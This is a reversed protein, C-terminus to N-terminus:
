PLLSSKTLKADFGSGVFGAALYVRVPGVGPCYVTYSEGEIFDEQAKWCGSFSGAPVTVNGVFSWTYSGSSTMWMQGDKVPEPLFLAWALSEYIDVQAGVSSLFYTQPIGTCFSDVEFATRGALMSTSVIKTEHTGPNCKEGVNVPTVDYTWTAGPELPYLVDSGAGGSGGMGAGGSGGMGAGGAGGVSGGSGGMGAGGAGGAGSSSASPGSTADSGGEGGAGGAGTEGGACGAGAFALALLGISLRTKSRIGRTESM